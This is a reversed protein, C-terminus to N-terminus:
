GLPSAEQSVIERGTSDSQKCAEGDLRTTVCEERQSLATNRHWRSSTEQRKTRAASERAKQIPPLLLGLLLFIIAIVLLLEILTFRRREERRTWSSDRDQASRM